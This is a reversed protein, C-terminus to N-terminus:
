TGSPSRMKSAVLAERDAVCHQCAHWDGVAKGCEVRITAGCSCVGYGTSIPWHLIQHAHPSVM